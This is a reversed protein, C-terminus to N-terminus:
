YVVANHPLQLHSVQFQGVLLKIVYVFIFFFFFISYAAYTM